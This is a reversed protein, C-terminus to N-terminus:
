KDNTVEQEKTSNYFIYIPNVEGCNICDVIDKHNTPKIETSGCDCCKLFDLNIKDTM